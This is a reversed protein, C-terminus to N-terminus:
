NQRKEMNRRAIEGFSRNKWKPGVEPADENNELELTSFIKTSIESLEDFEEFKPTM